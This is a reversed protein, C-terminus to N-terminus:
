YKRILALLKGQIRVDTAYIPSMKANAPELRVKDVEKFFRKLTALGNELLAVVIDGNAAEDQKLIIVYDGSYIGDEIMSDGKVQLVFCTKGAPILNKPITFTAHPDSYPELPRGAAIFGLLPLDTELDLGFNTTRQEIIEISRAGGTTRRIIGKRELSVLHEFVTAPSSLGIAKCIENITPSYSNKKIFDKIYELIERQRKYIVVPM